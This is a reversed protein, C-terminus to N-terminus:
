YIGLMPKGGDILNIEQRSWHRPMKQSVALGAVRRGARILPVWVLSRVESRLHPPIHAGSPPEVDIDDVVYAHNELLGFDSLRYRGAITNTAGKSYDGLIVFHDQDAEVEAYDCRDAGTYQGLMRVTVAVIDKPDAVLRMLAYDLDGIFKDPGYNSNVSM